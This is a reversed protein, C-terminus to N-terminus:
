YYRWGGYRYYRHRYYGGRWRYPYYRHRYYYAQIVDTPNTTVEAPLPAIPLAGAGVSGAIYVLAAGAIASAVRTMKCERASSNNVM